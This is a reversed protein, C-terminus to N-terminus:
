NEPKTNQVARAKLITGKVQKIIYEVSSVADDNAPIPYDALAPDVNTDCLGIIKIKKLRAEKVALEDTDMDLVLIADPLRALNKIGGMRRALDKIEKDIGAREKKTYKELEGKARKDELNKFYEIRKMITNFNTFTGGLWRECVYPLGCEEGFNKILDRLQVRTGVVLLIKNQVILDRIVDLAQRLKVATKELDMVHIANRVGLIYPKMRPHTKSTRHGFHIGARAMEEFDFGSVTGSQARPKKLYELIEKNEEPM